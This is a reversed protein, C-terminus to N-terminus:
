IQDKRYTLLLEGLDIGFRTKIQPIEKDAYKVIDSWSLKLTNAKPVPHVPLRNNSSFKLLLYFHYHILLRHLPLLSGNSSCPPDTFKVAMDVSDYSTHYSPADFLPPAQFYHM